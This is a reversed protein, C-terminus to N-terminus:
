CAPHPETLVLAPCQVTRLFPLWAAAQLSPRFHCAEFVIHSVHSHFNCGSCNGM